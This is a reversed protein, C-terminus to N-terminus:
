KCKYLSILKAMLTLNYSLTVNYKLVFRNPIGSQVWIGKFIMEIAARIRTISKKCRRASELMSRQKYKKTHEYM